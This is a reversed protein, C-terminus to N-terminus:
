YGYFLSITIIISIKLEIVSGSLNGCLQTSIREYILPNAFYTIKSGWVTILILIYNQYMLFQSDHLM